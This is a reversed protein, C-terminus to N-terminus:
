GANEGFGTGTINYFIKDTWNYKSLSNCHM